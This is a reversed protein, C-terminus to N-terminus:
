GNWPGLLRTGWEHRPRKRCSHTGHQRLGSHLRLRLSWSAKWRAVWVGVSGGGVGSEVVEGWGYVRGM